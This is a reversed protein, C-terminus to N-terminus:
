SRAAEVLEGDADFWANGSARDSEVSVFFALTGSSRSGTISEVHPEELELAAFAADAMQETRELAPADSVLFSVADLDDDAGVRVPEPEDLGGRARYVWTDLNERRV